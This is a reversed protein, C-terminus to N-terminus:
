TNTNIYVHIKEEKKRNVIEKGEGKVGRRERNERV